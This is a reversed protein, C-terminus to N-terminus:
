ESLTLGGEGGEVEEDCREGEVDEGAGGESHEFGFADGDHVHEGEGDGHGHVDDAHVEGELDGGDCEVM